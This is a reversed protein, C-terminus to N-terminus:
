ESMRNPIKKYELIYRDSNYMKERKMVSFGLSLANNLSYKNSPHITCILLSGEPIHSIIYEWMEKQMGVGWYNPHVAVDEIIYIGRTITVSSFAVLKNKDKIGCVYSNSFTIYQILELFSSPYYFDPNKIANIVANRVNLIGFYDFLSCLVVNNHNM